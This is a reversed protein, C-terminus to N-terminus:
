GSLRLNVDFRFMERGHSWFLLFRGLSDLALLAQKCCPLFVVGIGGLVRWALSVRSPTFFKRSPATCKGEKRQREGRWSRKKEMEVCMIVSASLGAATRFFTSSFSFPPSAFAATGAAAWWPFSVATVAAGLWGGALGRGLFSSLISPAASAALLYLTREGRSQCLSKKISNVCNSM